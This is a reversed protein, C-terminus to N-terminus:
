VFQLLTNVHIRSIYSYDDYGGDMVIVVKAEVERAFDAVIKDRAETVKANITPYVGVGANYFIIKNKIPNKKLYQIRISDLEYSLEDLYTAGDYKGVLLKTNPRRYARYSDFDETSIDLVTVKNFNDFESLTNFTGGGCHADLDLIMSNKCELAAIALSNITCFANGRNFSAHHLGSSLSASACYGDVSLVDGIASFIGATSNLVHNYLNPSWGIGNSSALNSPVGTKIADIYIQDTYKTIITDVDKLIGDSEETPDIVDLVNFRGAVNAVYDAKKFLGFEESFNSYNDNYYINM